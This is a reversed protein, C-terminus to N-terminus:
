RTRKAAVQRLVGTTNFRYTAMELTTGYKTAIQQPTNGARAATLLLPRPLLIAGGLATAEEEQETRCTRFMTGQLERLETLEHKLIVHSLEHAIDSVQREASRIPNVVIVSQGDIRFTCASFAFAQIRELEELRHLSVLSSADMVRIGQSTAAQWIDIAADEQLGLDTRIANAIREAEAKFGRRLSM